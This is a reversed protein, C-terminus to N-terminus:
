AEEGIADRLMAVTRFEGTRRGTILQLQLAGATAVIRALEPTPATETTLTMVGSSRYQDHVHAVPPLGLETRVGNLAARRRDLHLACGVKRLVRVIRTGADGHRRSVHPPLPVLNRAGAVACVAVVPLQSKEAGVVAGALWADTAIAHPTFAEVADLVDFALDLAPGMLIDRSVAPRTSRSAADAATFAYRFRAIPLGLEGATTAVRRDGVITVAHGMDGLRAALQLLAECSPAYSAAVILARIGPADRGAPPTASSADAGVM